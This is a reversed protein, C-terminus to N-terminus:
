HSISVRDSHRVLWGSRRAAYDLDHYRVCVDPHRRAYICCRECRHVQGPGPGPRPVDEYVMADLGGFAHVRIAKMTGSRLPEVDTEVVAGIHLHSLKRDALAERLVM